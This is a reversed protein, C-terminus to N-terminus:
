PDSSGIFVLPTVQQLSGRHSPLLIADKAQTSAKGVAVKKKAKSPVHSSHEVRLQFFLELGSM